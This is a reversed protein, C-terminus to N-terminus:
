LFISKSVSKKKDESNKMNESITTRFFGIEFLLVKKGKNMKENEGKGV